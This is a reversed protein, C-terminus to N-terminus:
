AHLLQHTRVFDEVSTMRVGFARATEEMDVPTDFTELMAMLGSVLEPVGPVPPLGPLVTGPLVTQVEIARRLVRGYAAVVDRWSIAEPGGIPIRRNMADARGAVAVAFAAVDAAAIWSHRRSGEGVLTVPRGADVPAGVIMPFMVDMIGNAALITYPLWSARLYAEAQAKARPLPVPSDETAALASVFIFHRVGAGSAADILHRNGELDVTLPNDEGGRQGSSATTIVVDAGACADVLSEPRKLDGIVPQAGADVLPQWHSGARVLVRVDEGRELLRRAIMGGVLGTSGVILKM